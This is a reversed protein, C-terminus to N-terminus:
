MVCRAALGRRQREFFHRLEVSAGRRGRRLMGADRDHSRVSAPAPLIGCSGDRSRIRTTGDPFARM